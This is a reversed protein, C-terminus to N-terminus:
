PPAPRKRAERAPSGICSTATALLSARDSMFNRFSALTPLTRAYKEAVVKGRTVTVGNGPRPPGGGVPADEARPRRHGAAARLLGGRLLHAERPGRARDLFRALAPGLGQSLLPQPGTVLRPRLGPLPIQGHRLGRPHRRARGRHEPKRTAPRQPAIRPERRRSEDTRRRMRRWLARCYPRNLGPWFDHVAYASRSKASRRQVIFLLSREFRGCVAM